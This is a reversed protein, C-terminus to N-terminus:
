GILIMMKFIIIRYYSIGSLTTVKTICFKHREEHDNRNLYAWCDSTMQFQVICKGIRFIHEPHTCETINFHDKLEQETM